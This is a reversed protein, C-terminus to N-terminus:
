RLYLRIYDKETKAALSVVELNIRSLPLGPEPFVVTTEFTTNFSRVSPRETPPTYELSLREWPV